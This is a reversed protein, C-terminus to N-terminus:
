TQDAIVDCVLPYCRARAVTHGSEVFFNKLAAFKISYIASRLITRVNTQM